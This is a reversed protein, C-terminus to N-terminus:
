YCYYCHFLLLLLLLPLLSWDYVVAIGVFIAIVVIVNKKAFIANTVITAIFIFLFLLLLPLVNCDYVVSIAIFM